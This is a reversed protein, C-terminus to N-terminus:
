EENKILEDVMYRNRSKKGLYKWYLMPSVGSGPRKIGLNDSTFKEGSNIEKLAVISRRAADMNVMESPVPNKKGDGMSKEILRISKVMDKLEEPELSAKHDPGIMDKDITFHKEIISAGLAVAAIPILIGNTHDSYGIDLNFFNRMEVIANLNVESIPAPYQTTCHLLTVREKLLSKGKSSNYAKLFVEESPEIRSKNDHIFGFAIISLAKEIDAITSMGTSLIINRKKLACELLFPGNTIEGSPIKLIDLLIEDALFDLSYQDFATSLFKIKKTKCYDLLDYHWEFPLELKKVMDFQTQSDKTTNLQYKAKAASRTMVMKTVFTQFKIADAGSSAAIDILEKALIFDGNHNVGAEAIVFVKKM